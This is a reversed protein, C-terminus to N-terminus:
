LYVFLCVVPSTSVTYYGAPDFMRSYHVWENRHIGGPHVMQVHYNLEESEFHLRLVYIQDGFTHYYFNVYCPTGEKFFEVSRLVATEQFQQGTTEIYM